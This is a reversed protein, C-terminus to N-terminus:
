TKELAKRQRETIDKGAEYGRMRLTNQLVAAEVMTTLNRGPAVPLTIEPVPVGLLERTTHSGHLRDLRSIEEEEMQKLNIVLQLDQKQRVANDGYMARINLIGLGRVELFDRLIPPCSGSLTVPAIRAFEPADDAILRHGRSILSLALESKGVSADGTLLVGVGSVELFVGHLTIRDAFANTLYYQLHTIVPDDGLPTGIMAVGAHEANEILDQGPHIGDCFIIASPQSEFLKDLTDRYANKGLDALYTLEAHGIIQIRNPHICNLAGVLGHGRTDLHTDPRLPNHKGTKSSLWRFQLIGGVSSFLEAITEPSNM